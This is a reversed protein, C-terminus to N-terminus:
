ESHMCLSGTPVVVALMATSSAASRAPAQGTQTEKAFGQTPIKMGTYRSPTM